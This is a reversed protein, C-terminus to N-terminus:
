PAVGLSIDSVVRDGEALTAHETMALGAESLQRRLAEADSWAPYSLTAKVGEDPDAFFADLEGGEVSEIATFLAAAAATVGGPPPAAAARRRLSAVPDPEQALAPAAATIAALAEAQLQRAALDDRLGAAAILALPSVLVAAALAAMRRWGPRRSPGASADAELLNIPPSLAARALATDLVERDKIAVVRRGGAVLEVLDSQVSVAFGRGRLALTEGFSAAVLVDDATPEALALMDPTVVDARVGLSDLYTTWAQLVDRGVTAVLRTRGDAEAAGVVTALREAPAAQHERLRWAAAARLQAPGGAPLDLWCVSVDVGPCLAVTRMAVPPEPADPRLLGRELIAGDPAVIMTPAPEGPFAPILVLRTPKM